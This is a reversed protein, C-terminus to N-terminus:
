RLCIPSIGWSEFSSTYGVPEARGFWKIEVGRRRCEEVFLATQKKSIGALNFQISSGVYHEKADRKPLRIGDVGSLVAEFTQYRENWRQCQKDLMRLQPRVLAAQLNTM